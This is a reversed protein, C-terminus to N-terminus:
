REYLRSNFNETPTFRKIADERKQVEKNAYEMFAQEREANYKERNRNVQSIADYYREAKSGGFMNSAILNGTKFILNFGAGLPGGNRFVDGYQKHGGKGTQPDYWTIQHINHSTQITKKQGKKMAEFQKLLDANSLM